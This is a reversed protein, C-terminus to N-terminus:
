SQKRKLSLMKGPQCMAPSFFSVCLLKNENEIIKPSIFGTVHWYYYGFLFQCQHGYSTSAVATLVCEPQGREMKHTQLLPLSYIWFAMGM